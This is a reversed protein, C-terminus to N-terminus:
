RDKVMNQVYSDPYLVRWFSVLFSKEEETLNAFKIGVMAEIYKMPNNKNSGLVAMLRIREQRNMSAVKKFNKFSTSSKGVVPEGPQKKNKGKVKGPDTSEGKQYNPDNNILVKPEPNNDDGPGAETHEETVKGADNSEGMEKGCKAEVVKEESEASTKGEAQDPKGDVLEGRQYSNAGEENDNNAVQGRCQGRPDDDCEPKAESATVVEEPQQNEEEETSAEKLFKQVWDNFTPGDGAPNVIKNHFFNM